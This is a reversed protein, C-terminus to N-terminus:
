KPDGARRRRPLFKRDIFHNPVGHGWHQAMVSQMVVIASIMILTVNDPEWGYIPAAIGVLASTGVAWLAVRIDPKTTTDVRVTRCFVSWFLALCLLEWFFVRSM